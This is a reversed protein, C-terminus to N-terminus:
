KSNRQYGPNSQRNAKGNGECRNPFRRALCCHEPAVQAILLYGASCLIYLGVKSSKKPANNVNLMWDDKTVTGRVAVILIRHGDAEDVYIIMAKVNAKAKFQQGNDM